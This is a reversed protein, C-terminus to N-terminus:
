RLPAVTAAGEGTPRRRRHLQGDDACHDGRRAGVWSLESAREILKLTKASAADRQRDIKDLRGNSMIGASTLLRLLRGREALLSLGDAM